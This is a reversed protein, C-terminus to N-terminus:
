EEPVEEPQPYAIGLQDYLYEVKDNLEDIQQIYSQEKEEQAAKIKGDVSLRIAFGITVIVAFATLVTTLPNFYGKKERTGETMYGFGSAKLAKRLAMALPVSIVVALVGNICATGAKELMVTVATQVPNGLILQEIFSKGPYLIIYTLQGIIAAIITRASENKIGSRSIMGATWGMIFKNIFTMPASTIYRPDFLDFLFGGIGSALGGTTGGFLLGALLCMSNGLHVRMDDSLPIQMYNGIYVLAAMLGVAVIGYLKKRSETKNM